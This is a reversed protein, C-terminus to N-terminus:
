GTDKRTDKLRLFHINLAMQRQQFSHLPLFEKAIVMKQVQGANRQRKLAGLLVSCILEHQTVPSTSELVIQSLEILVHYKIFNITV